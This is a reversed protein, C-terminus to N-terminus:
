RFRHTELLLPDTKEEINPEIEDESIERTSSGTTYTYDTTFDYIMPHDKWHMDLRREFTKVNKATVVTDPLSNWVEEVRNTFYYKRFDLRSRDKVLKISNGRTASNKNRMFLGETERPDYVGTTIKYTETMDRRLGLCIREGKDYISVLIPLVPNQNAKSKKAQDDRKSLHENTDPRPIICDSPQRIKYRQIPIRSIPALLRRTDDM